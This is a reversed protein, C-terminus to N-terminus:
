FPLFCLMQTYKTSKYTINLLRILFELFLVLITQTASLCELLSDKVSNISCTSSFPRKFCVQHILSLINFNLFLLSSYLCLPVFDFRSLSHCLFLSSISLSSSRCLPVSNCRSLSLFFLSLFHSLSLSLSFSLFLFFSSLSFPSNRNTRLYRIILRKYSPKLM